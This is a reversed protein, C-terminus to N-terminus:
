LFIAYARLLDNAPAKAQSNDPSVGVASRSVAM